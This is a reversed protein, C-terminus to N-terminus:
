EAGIENGDLFGSPDFSFDNVTDGPDQHLFSDFDFDQLVDMNGNGPNAFDLSTDYNSFTSDGLGFGGGQLPDPQQSISINGAPAPAQGNTAPQVAGNQSNNFNQKHVPTMPTAPTPTAGTAEADASPTAGANLNAASGKKKAKSDKLDSKKKPNAKNSQQPTPPAPTQSPSTTAQPTRGNPNASGAGPPMSPPPMSRPQPTGITQQSGAQGQSPQTM